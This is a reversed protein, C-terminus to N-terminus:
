MVILVKFVTELKLGEAMLFSFRSTAADFLSKNCLRKSKINTIITRSKLFDRHNNSHYLSHTNKRSSNKNVSHSLSLIAKEM